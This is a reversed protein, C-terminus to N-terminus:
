SLSSMNYVWKTGAGGSMLVPPTDMVSPKGVSKGDDSTLDLRSVLSLRLAKLINLSSVRKNISSTVILVSKFGM